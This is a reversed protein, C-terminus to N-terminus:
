AQRPAVTFKPKGFRRRVANATRLVGRRRLLWRELRFKGPFDMLILGLLITLLGQGPVGPVALFIGLLVLLFGVLNKGAVAAYRLVPHSTELLPRRSGEDFYDVPLFVIIASVMILSLVGTAFGVGAWFM